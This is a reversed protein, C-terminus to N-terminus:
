CCEESLWKATFVFQYGLGNPFASFCIGMRWVRGAFLFSSSFSFTVEQVRAAACRVFGCSCETAILIRLYARVPAPGADPVGPNESQHLKGTDNKREPAKIKLSKNNKSVTSSDFM